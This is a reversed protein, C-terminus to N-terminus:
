HVPLVWITVAVVVSVAVQVIGVLRSAVVNHSALYSHILGVYVEVAFRGFRESLRLVLTLTGQEVRPPHGEEDICVPVVLRTPLAEIQLDSAYVLM